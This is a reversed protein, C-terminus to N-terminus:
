AAARVAPNPNPEIIVFAMWSPWGAPAFVLKVANRGSPRPRVYSGSLPFCTFLKNALFRFLQPQVPSPSLTSHIMRESAAVVDIAGRDISCGDIETTWISCCRYEALIARNMASPFLTTLRARVAEVWSVKIGAKRARALNVWTEDEGAKVDWTAINTYLYVRM